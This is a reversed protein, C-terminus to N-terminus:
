ELRFPSQTTKDFGPAEVSLRYRAPPLAPFNYRGASDTTTAYPVGREVDTATVKATPVPANTPDTITGRISGTSTQSWAVLCTFLLSLITKQMLGRWPLKRM